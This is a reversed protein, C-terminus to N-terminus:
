AGSTRRPAVVGQDYSEVLEEGPKLTLFDDDWTGALLRSILTPDGAITVFEWGRRAAEDRATKETADEGGGGHRVFVARKYHQSWAGMSEMLYDANEAGYTKVFEERMARAQEDSTNGISLSTNGSGREIYDAAYWYTGPCSSFEREYRERGGLFLTICDHARPIVLPVQGARIGATAKGCLGYAMVVADYEGDGAADVSAQLRARLDAPNAHLGLKLMDIDVIHPSAGAARYVLRALAECAICKIKM